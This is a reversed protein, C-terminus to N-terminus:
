FRDSSIKPKKYPNKAKDFFTNHERFSLVSFAGHTTVVSPLRPMRPKPKQTQPRQEVHYDYQPGNAVPPTMIPWKISVIEGEHNFATAMMHPVPPANAVDSTSPQMTDEAVDNAEPQVNDKAM